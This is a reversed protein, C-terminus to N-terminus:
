KLRKPKKQSSFILLAKSMALKKAQITNKKQHSTIKMEMRKFIIGYWSNKWVRLLIIILEKRRIKLCKFTNQKKKLQLKQFRKFKLIKKLFSKVHNKKTKTNTIIRIEKKNLLKKTKPFQIMTTKVLIWKKTPMEMIIM